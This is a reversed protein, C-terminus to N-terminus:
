PSSGGRCSLATHDAAACRCCSTVPGGTQELDPRPWTQQAFPGRDPLVSIRSGDHVDVVTGTSGDRRRVRDGHELGSKRRAM